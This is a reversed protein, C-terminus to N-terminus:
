STRRDDGDIHAKRDRWHQVVIAAARMGAEPRANRIPRRSENDVLGITMSDRGSMADGSALKPHGADRTEHRLQPLM